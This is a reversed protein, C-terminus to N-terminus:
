LLGRRELDRVAPRVADWVRPAADAVIAGRIEQYREAATEALQVPACEANFCHECWSVEEATGKMTVWITRTRIGCGCEPCGEREISVLFRLRGKRPRMVTLESRWADSLRFQM